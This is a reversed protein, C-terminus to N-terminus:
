QVYYSYNCGKSSEAISLLASSISIVIIINYRTWLETARIIKKEEDWNDELLNQESVFASKTQDCNM